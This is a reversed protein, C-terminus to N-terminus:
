LGEGQSDSVYHQRKNIKWPKDRYKTPPSLHEDWNQGWTVNHELTIMALNQLWFYEAEDRPWM